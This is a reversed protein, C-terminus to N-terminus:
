RVVVRVRAINRIRGYLTKRDGDRQSTGRLSVFYTGPTDFRHTTAVAAKKAGPAVQAQQPYTGKGDFDWEAAIVSGTRPPVEITGRLTVPQGVKVEARVGGNATLAVVPQLGHRAAATPAVTVQGDVVRYGTSPSPEVGKEVWAAIDRLAQQLVPVYSVIRDPSETQDPATDGHLAHDTYWLRYNSDAAAGQHQRVLGRYWDAQWPLAERDWLSEVVIMKGTWKGTQISGGTAGVFLPGLLMRRQPYLPTGDPKRFQDWTKYSADPVQHRHYTEMALFNSNDVTVADGPRILKAVDPDAVGLVVVNGDVIRALPLKKGKAAGSTVMLDGAIFTIAPPAGALRFAAVREGEAGEPIKFAQDVGGRQQESSADINVRARAAEAATLVGAVTSPFQLRANAFQEPHDHGLYGPKTWFDTFYTPDAMAVGPYLAAFGHIGMTRWGFWSPPYFGMKTAERLADTEVPDIGAYIDGSGGPDAADVVKDLKDGLVRIARMRWTFMNPIAMNSGMVYPVAGDWVGTTNEFSGITRFAGGSGGYAYGYPRKTTAYIRRAVVRSYAAAAANARYASITPDVKSTAVKGLDFPGGGNTEIFYAGGDIAMGIMNGEGPPAKQATDEGVPFPTIYQFFHGQYAQKPPFYFSFRTETGKFGGHVYLHRVPADRWEEVDVYPQAFFPDADPSYLPREAAPAPAAPQAPASVGPATAGTALMMTLTGALGRVAM